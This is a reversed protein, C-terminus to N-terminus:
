GASTSVGGSGPGADDALVHRAFVVALAAFLDPLLCALVFFLITETGEALGGLYYISKRGHLDTSLRRKAAM